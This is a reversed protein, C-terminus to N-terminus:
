RITQEGLYRQHAAVVADFDVDGLFGLALARHLEFDSPWSCVIAAVRPDAQHTVLARAQAGALRELSDLMQAVTVSIGPLNLTRQAGLAAADLRAAHLLNAIVRDPSSLWLRTDLPVPCNSPLGQLPERIIGSAFSSAAANPAGPRISITPLRCIRGDVFGKRSYDGVLLEGIAKQAGYSSQPVAAQTDGVQPPLEGGFVALSSAFVLRPSRARHRCVELLTRTADLNVRMGLDFDAEAQGSVVAALHFVLGTDADILAELRAPNAIDGAHSLLRPDDLPCPMLDLSLVRAGDPLLDSADPHLLARILRQGLFGAGGTVVINM